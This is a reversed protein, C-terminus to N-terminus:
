SMAGGVWFLRRRARSAATYAWRRHEWAGCRQEVVVAEAFEDGQAKHCTIAYAYDFPLRGRRDRAAPPPCESYFADPLFRVRHDEGDSRFVLRDGQVSVVEGQQGNFVGEAHDNQLCMVKDGAVPRGDPRGHAERWLRNLMVRTKNLACVIQFDDAPKHSALGTFNTFIVRGTHQEPHDRWDGPRNGQRVFEAFRAIEEANRHVQELTIDPSSMLNFKDGSVPELQGHDGVFIVPRGFSLLDEYTDRDVMSAEDVVFGSCDVEHPGKRDFVVETRRQGDETRTRERPRYILSHITSAPVGKRRLVNAAKGTPACVAFSPLRSVVEAIVTTKGTGAYGGLTVVDDGATVLAEVAARQEDTLPARSSAPTLRAPAVGPTPAESVPADKRPM